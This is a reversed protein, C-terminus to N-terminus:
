APPAARHAALLAHDLGGAGGDGVDRTLGVDDGSEALTQAPLGHDGLRPACPQRHVIRHPARPVGVAHFAEQVAELAAHLARRQTDFEVLGNLAEGGQQRETDTHSRDRLKDQAPRQLM